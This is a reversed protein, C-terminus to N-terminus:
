DAATPQERKAPHTCELTFLGPAFPLTNCCTLECWASIVNCWLLCLLLSLLYCLYSPMIRKDVGRFGYTMMVMMARYVFIFHHPRNECAVQTTECRTIVTRDWVALSMGLM